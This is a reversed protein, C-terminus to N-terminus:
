VFRFGNPPYYICIGDKSIVLFADQNFWARRYQLEPEWDPIRQLAFWDKLVQLIRRSSMSSLARAM